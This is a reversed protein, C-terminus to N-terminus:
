DEETWNKKRKYDKHSKFTRIGTNFGNTVRQKKAKEKKINKEVM